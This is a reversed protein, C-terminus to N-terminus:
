GRACGEIMRDVWQNHREDVSQRAPDALFWAISDRMGEALTTTAVFGSVFQKIKTNDFVVSWSKDGLLTGEQAPDVRVISESTVHVLRPEIGAARGVAQYIQDWTAVEDTTIHFAHGITQPNGLLGVLGKAFDVNHTVVWLSTGDGHVLIPKGRRMRDVLTWPHSSSGMAQPPKEPGYTHSPRVIAIPFRSERYARLLREECAIKQRSYEWWPNALPTSETILYRTVPKQYASASSIFVYQGTKGAFLRLDTEIHEPTFAIWDVVADFTKGRLTSAVQEEQRIDGNIITAGAPINPQRQGRNLLYLDIGREIALRTSATSILGTGGIFLVKM